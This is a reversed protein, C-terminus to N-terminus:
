LKTTNGSTKNKWFDGAVGMNRLRDYKGTGGSFAFTLYTNVFFNPIFCLCM